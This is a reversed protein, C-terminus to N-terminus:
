KMLKLKKYTIRTTTLRNFPVNFLYKLFMILVKEQNIQQKVLSYKKDWKISPHPSYVILEQNKYILSKLKFTFRKYVYWSTRPALFRDHVYVVM